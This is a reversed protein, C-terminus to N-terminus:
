FHPAESRAISSCKQFDVSEFLVKRNSLYRTHNKATPIFNNFLNKLDLTFSAMIQLASSNIESKDFRMPLTALAGHMICNKAYKPLERM